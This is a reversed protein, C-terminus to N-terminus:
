IVLFNFYSFFSRQTNNFYEFPNINRYQYYIYNKEKRAEIKQNYHLKSDPALYKRLSLILEIKSSTCRNTLETTMVYFTCKRHLISLM